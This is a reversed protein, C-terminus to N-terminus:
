VIHTGSLVKGCRPCFLERCPEGKKHEIKNGCFICYCYKHDHDHEKHSHATDNINIIDESSCSVCNDVEEDNNTGFTEDCQNCRFWEKEFEVSGGKIIIVKGEAFAKAIAKRAKDYIRTFTPRSIEMRKAAEEQNLNEYDALRISEYEEFLLDVTELESFPIGFPKYGIMVPPLGMKRNRKTRPM